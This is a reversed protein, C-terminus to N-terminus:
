RRYEVEPCVISLHCEALFAKKGVTSFIETDRGLFVCAVKYKHKASIEWLNGGFVEGHVKQVNQPIIIAKIATNSFCADEIEILSEPLVIDSLSECGDFAFYELKNVSTGLRVKHM